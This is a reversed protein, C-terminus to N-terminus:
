EGRQLWSDASAKLASDTSRGRSRAVSHMVPGGWVMGQLEVADPAPRLRSCPQCTCGSTPWLHDTESGSFANKPAQEYSAGRESDPPCSRSTLSYQPMQAISVSRRLPDTINVRGVKYTPLRPPV